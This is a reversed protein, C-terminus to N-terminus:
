IKVYYNTIILDIINFSLDKILKINQRSLAKM